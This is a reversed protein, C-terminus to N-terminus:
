YENVNVEGKSIRYLGTPHESLKRSGSEDIVFSDAMYGTAQASVDRVMPHVALVYGSQLVTDESQAGDEVVDLGIWPHELVDLGLAHGSWYSSTAGETEIAELVARQVKSPSVGPRMERTAAVLGKTVARAM